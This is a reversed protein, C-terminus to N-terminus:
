RSYRGKSNDTKKKARVLRGCFVGNSSRGIDGTQPAPILNRRGVCYDSSEPKDAIKGKELPICVAGDYYGQIEVM